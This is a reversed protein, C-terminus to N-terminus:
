VAVYALEERGQQPRLLQVGGSGRGHCRNGQWVLGEDGHLEKRRGRCGYGHADVGAVAVHIAWTRWVLVVRGVKVLRLNRDDRGVLAAEDTGGGRGGGRGKDSGQRAVSLCGKM